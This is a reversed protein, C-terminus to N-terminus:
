DHIIYFPYLGCNVWKPEDVVQSLLLAEDQGSSRARCWLEISRKASPVDLAKGDAQPHTYLPNILILSLMM